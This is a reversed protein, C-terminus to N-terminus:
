LGLAEAVLGRLERRLKARVPALATSRNRNDLEYPDTDLDYLEDLEGARGRNVRHIYKYRDTRM